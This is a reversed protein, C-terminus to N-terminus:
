GMLRTESTEEKSERGGGKGGTGQVGGEGADDACARTRVVVFTAFGNCMACAGDVLVVGGAEFVTSESSTAAM